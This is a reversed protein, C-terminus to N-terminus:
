QFASDLGWVVPVLGTLGHHSLHLPESSIGLEMIGQLEVWRQLGWQGAPWLRCIRPLTEVQQDRTFTCQEMWSAPHGSAQCSARTCGWPGEWLRPKGM